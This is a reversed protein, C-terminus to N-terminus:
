RRKVGTEFRYEKIGEPIPVKSQLLMRLKNAKNKLELDAEDERIIQYLDRTSGEKIQHGMPTHFQLEFVDDTNKNRIKVNVGQCATTGWNNKVDFDRYGLEELRHLYEDVKKTYLNDEIIITYRVSDRINKAAEMYNGNYGVSDAIIKRRLGEITKLTHLPTGNKDSLLVAENDQVLSKIDLTISPAIQSATNYILDACEAVVKKEDLSLKDYSTLRNMYEPGNFYEEIAIRVSFYKDMSWVDKDPLYIM